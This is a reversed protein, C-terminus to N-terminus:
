FIDSDEHVVDVADVREAIPTGAQGLNLNITVGNSTNTPVQVGFLRRELRELRWQASKLMERARPVNEPTAAALYTEAAELATVARAVQVDRWDDPRHRLLARNLASHSIGLDQSIDRTTDDAIARSLVYDLIVKRDEVPAGFLWGDARSQLGQVTARRMIADRIARDAAVADASITIDPKVLAALLAGDEARDETSMHQLNRGFTVNRPLRCGFHGLLVARKPIARPM